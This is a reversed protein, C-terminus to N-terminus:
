ARAAGVAIAASQWLDQWPFQAPLHYVVRRVSSTIRVAVKLLANRLRAVSWRRAVTRRLRWRLEQFLAYAVFVMVLRFQNAVFRTCSMRDLELDLKLEKIRNESDGRQVYWEYVTAPAPRKRNTVVFRLNDKSPRGRYALVEAKVVVRRPHSWSGAQYDQEGFLTETEGSREHLTRVITMWGEAGEALVSNRPIGVVYELGLEELRDLLRPSYFGADTRFRIRAGPFRSRLAPITRELIELVGKVDSATGSRLRTSFLYQEPDDDISLFALLPLYCWSRYFGNFFTQQQQGHTPDVTSDFDLTIVKAKRHRKALRAIVWDEGCRIMDFVERAGPTNEFRSLTPQSALPEGSLPDRGAAWKMAPDGRLRAADNCDAYGHAIGLTRQRLLGEFTHQVRDPNRPDAVCRAIREILGVGRDLHDLLLVGADSSLAETDFVAHTPRGDASEFLVTQRSRDTM